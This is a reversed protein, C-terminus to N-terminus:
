PISVFKVASRRQSAPLLVGVRRVGVVRKGDPSLEGQMLSGDAETVDSVLAGTAMDFVRVHRDESLAVRGGDASFSIETRAGRIAPPPLTRLLAGTTADRIEPDREVKGSGGVLMSSAEGVVVVAGTPDAAVSGFPIAPREWSGPTVVSAAPIEWKKTLGTSAGSGVVDFRQLVANKPVLPGYPSRDPGGTAHLDHRSVVIAGNGIFSADATVQMPSTQKNVVEVQTGSAVDFLWIGSNLGVLLVHKADPSIRARVITDERRQGGLRATRQIWTPGTRWAGIPQGAADLLRWKSASFVVFTSGDRTVDFGDFSETLRMSPTSGLTGAALTGRPPGSSETRAPCGNADSRELFAFKNPAVFTARTVDCRTRVLSTLAEESVAEGDSAEVSCGSLAGWITTLVFGSVAWRFKM